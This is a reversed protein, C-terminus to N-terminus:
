RGKVLRRLRVFSFVSIIATAAIATWLWEAELLAFICMSFCFTFITLLSSQTSLTYRYRCFYVAGIIMCYALYWLCFAIGLGALGWLHYCGINLVFGTLASLTETLIYIKGDSRAVIVFALFCSYARFVTGAVAISIYPIIAHFEDSYLISVILERCVLFISIVPLLCFMMINIEQSAFVRTRMRSHCVRTIRPYYETALASFILGFYRGVLSYGSQYFGVVETGAVRNLYASLIYNFLMTVFESLTMLLGLRVFSAGERVAERNTVKVPEPVRHRYIMVAAILSVHYILVSWLISDLRLWYFLPISFCLGMVTGLLSARAYHKLKELGQLISLENYAFGDFLLAASLLVFDWLHDTTGFSWRSLAPALAMTTIAGFLSIFWSWRRVVAVMRALKEGIGSESALAVDRVTSTRLGLSTASRLMEVASNYISYMGMGAPGIWLAVLKNLIVSCINSAMQVSGLVKISKLITKSINVKTSM